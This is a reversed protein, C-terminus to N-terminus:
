PDHIELQGALLSGEAVEHAIERAPADRWDRTFPLQAIAIGGLDDVLHLLHAEEAHQDWLLVSADADVGHGIGDDELLDGFRPHSDGADQTGM